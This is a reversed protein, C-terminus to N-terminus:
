RNEGKASFTRPLSFAPRPLEHGLRYEYNINARVLRGDRIVFAMEYFQHEALAAQEREIFDLMDSVALSVTLDNNM